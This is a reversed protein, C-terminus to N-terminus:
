PTRRTEDNELAPPALPAGSRAGSAPPAPTKRVVVIEVRRNKQLAAEDRGPVLPRTNGFGEVAIRDPAAGLAVLADRVRAARRESLRQNFAAGGTEDAHGEIQLREWEPHQKWLTMVAALVVRGASKVRAFNKDFLVREELVIRDEVLEIV